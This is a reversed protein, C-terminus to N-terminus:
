FSSALCGILANLFLLELYHDSICCDFQALDATKFFLFLNVCIHTWPRERSNKYQRMYAAVTRLPNIYLVM